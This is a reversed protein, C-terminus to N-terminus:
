SLARPMRNSLKYEDGCMRLFEEASIGCILYDVFYDQLAMDTVFQHGMHDIYLTVIGRYVVM